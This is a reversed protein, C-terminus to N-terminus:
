LHSEKLLLCNPWNSVFCVFGHEYKMFYVTYTQMSLRTKLENESWFWNIAKCNIVIVETIVVHNWIFFLVDHFQKYLLCNTDCM